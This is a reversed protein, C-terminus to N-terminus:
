TQRHPMICIRPGIARPLKAWRAFVTKCVRKYAKIFRAFRKSWCRMRITLKDARREVVARIWDPFSMGATGLPEDLDSFELHTHANVLGPLIATNKLDVPKLGQSDTGVSAIKDGDVVVIGDPIPPRDM